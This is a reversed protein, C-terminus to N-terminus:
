QKRRELVLIEDPKLNRDIRWLVGCLYMHEEHKNPIQYAIPSDYRHCFAQVNVFMGHSVKIECPPRRELHDYALRSVSRIKVATIENMM